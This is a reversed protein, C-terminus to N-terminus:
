GLMLREAARVAQTRADAVCDAIGTGRFGSASVFMGPLLRLRREIDEMLTAHGVELQPTADRWRYVRTLAPDGTIHLLKAADRHAIAALAADDLDIAEPDNIGGIYARLLGRGAPARDAWKSSVWSLARTRFGETRPVVVGTGDLPHRITSRVYGLAVTVVSAARIRGCLDSLHADLPQIIRTISRPPTAMLVTPVSVQEGNSLRVVYVGRAVGIRDVGAGTRIAHAPIRCMIAATLESMGNPLAVFPPASSRPGRAARLGAIVSHSRAELELFRPFAARMSLRWPDGGHIGALLPEALYDVAERGFRRGIFSAISEDGAAPRPAICVEAAMRLKGRWSFAGSTAFSSWRTPIGLVSAEPLRRLRGRRVVYTARTLQPHLRSDLGVERCLAVAAPKQTLL